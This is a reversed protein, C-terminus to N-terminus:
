WRCMARLSAYRHVVLAVLLSAGLVLLVIAVAAGLGGGGVSSVKPGVLRQVPRVSSPRWTADAPAPHSSWDVGLTVGRSAGRCTAVLALTSRPEVDGGSVELRAGRGSAIREPGARIAGEGRADFDSVNSFSCDGGSGALAALTARILRSKPFSGDLSGHIVVALAWLGDEEVVFFSDSDWKCPGIRM